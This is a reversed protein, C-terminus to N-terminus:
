ALRTERTPRYARTRARPRTRAREHCRVQTRNAELVWPDKLRGAEDVHLVQQLEQVAVGDDGIVVDLLQAEVQCGRSPPLPDALPRRAIIAMM